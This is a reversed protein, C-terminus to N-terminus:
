QTDNAIAARIAPLFVSAGESSATAIYGTGVILPYIVGFIDYSVIQASQEIDTNYRTIFEGQNLKQLNKLPTHVISNYFDHRLENEASALFLSFIYLGIDDMCSFVM